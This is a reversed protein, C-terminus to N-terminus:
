AIYCTMLRPFDEDARVIWASRIIATQGQRTWTFDVEYRQGYIDKETVTAEDNRAAALLAVQLEPADETRLGLASAFVRAKHKGVPHDPNLCYGSLKAIDIIVRD